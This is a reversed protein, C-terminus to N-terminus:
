AVWLIKELVIKQDERGIENFGFFKTLRLSRRNDCHIKVVATDYKQAMNALYKNIEGKINWKGQKEPVVFLDFENGVAIFVGGNFPTIETKEEILRKSEPNYKVGDYKECTDCIVQWVDDSLM